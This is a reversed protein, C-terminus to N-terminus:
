GLKEFPEKNLRARLERADEKSLIVLEQSFTISKLGGHKRLRPKQYM